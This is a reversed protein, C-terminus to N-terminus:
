STESVNVPDDRLVGVSLFTREEAAMHAELEEAVDRMRAALETDPGQLLAQVSAHEAVHEELMREIRVPGWADTERLLPELMEEETRNHETFADRLGGLAEHFSDHVPEGDLLRAGISAALELRKRLAAHQALLVRRAESPNM